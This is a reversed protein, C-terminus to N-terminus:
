AENTTEERQSMWVLHLHTTYGALQDLLSQIREHDAKQELMVFIEDYEGVNYLYNQVEEGHPSPFEIRTHIAYEDKQIPYIPSRTTSHYLVGDGMNAAVKMPMYMFEGTGLVLTKKGRRNQALEQGARKCAFEVESQGTSSLGFRGTGKLYPLQNTSKYRTHEFYISMNHTHIHVDQVNRKEKVSEQQNQNSGTVEIEGELLAITHITTNLQQELEQFAQKNGEHRWDLLSLITYEKQPFQQHIERIINLATKGTTIEDDVLVVHEHKRFLEKEIFCLQDTAHSHEEKFELVEATGQVKERTTHVYHGNTFQEFVAHGLATATEAFGIFLCDEPLTLKEKSLASEAEQLEETRKSKLAAAVSREFSANEGTRAQYFASALLASAFVPIRPEVALHKGLVNSVFLFSRKKNIRAAMKFLHRPELEYLSRHVNVDVQLENLVNYTYKKQLSTKIATTKM